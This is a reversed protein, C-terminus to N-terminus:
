FGPTVSRALCFLFGMRLFRTVVAFFGMFSFRAVYFFFGLLCFRAPCTWFGLYLFRALSFFRGVLIFRGTVVLGAHHALAFGTQLPNRTRLLSVREEPLPASLAHNKRPPPKHEDERQRVTSSHFQCCRGAFTTTM